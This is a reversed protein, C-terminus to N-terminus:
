KPFINGDYVDRRSEAFWGFITSLFPFIRIWFVIIVMFCIYNQRCCIWQLNSYIMLVFCICIPGFVTKIQFINLLVFVLAYNSRQIGRRITLYCLVWLGGGEWSKTLSCIHICYLMLIWCNGKWNLYIWRWISAMTFFFLSRKWPFNRLILLMVKFNFGGEKKKACLVIVYYWRLVYNILQVYKASSLINHSRHCNLNRITTELLKWKTNDMQPVKRM